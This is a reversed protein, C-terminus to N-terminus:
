VQDFTLVNFNEKRKTPSLFKWCERACICAKIFSTYFPLNFQSDLSLLHIFSHIYLRSGPNAIRSFLLFIAVRFSFELSLYAYTFSVFVHGPSHVFALCLVLVLCFSIIAITERLFKSSHAHNENIKRYYSIIKKLTQLFAM